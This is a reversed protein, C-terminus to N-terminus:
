GGKVGTNGPVDDLSDPVMVELHAQQASAVILQHSPELPSRRTVFANPLSVFIHTVVNTRGQARRLTSRVGREEPSHPAPAKRAFSVAELSQIQLLCSSPSPVTDRLRRSTM